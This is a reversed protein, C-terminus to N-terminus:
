FYSADVLKAEAQAKGEECTVAGDPNKLVFGPVQESLYKSILQQSEKKREPMLSKNKAAKEFVGVYSVIRSQLGDSVAALSRFARNNLSAEQRATVPFYYILFLVFLIGVSVMPFAFTPQLLKSSRSGPM